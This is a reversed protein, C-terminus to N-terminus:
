GARHATIYARACESFTMTKAKRVAAGQQRARRTELPDRGQRKLQRGEYALQRAQTLNVDRLPGLGMERAKGGIMVM